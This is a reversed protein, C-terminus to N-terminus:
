SMSGSQQTSYGLRIGQRKSNSVKRAVEARYAADKAYRPDRMATTMEAQSSFVADGTNGGGPNPTILTGGTGNAATFRAKLGNVAMTMQGADMTRLTSDFATVEAPTYNAKAWNVMADYAEKGGAAQHIQGVYSATQAQLGAIHADVAVKPIGLKEFTQYSADSLKGDKAFEQTAAAQAQEFTVPKVVPQEVPAPAPAQTAVTHEAQALTLASEAATKAEPTTAAAVAAKADNVKKQAADAQRTRTFHAELETTSKNWAAYDVAGTTANWFKDPVGEPKVPPKAVAAAAAATETTAAAAATTAATTETGAAATAATGTAATGTSAEAGVTRQDSNETIRSGRAKAIMAANYEPSGPKPATDSAVAAATVGANAVESM